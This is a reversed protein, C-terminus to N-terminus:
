FKACISLGGDRPGESKPPKEWHLQKGVFVQLSATDAVAPSVQPAQHPGSFERLRHLQGGVADVVPAVVFDVREECLPTGLSPTRESFDGGGNDVLHLRSM